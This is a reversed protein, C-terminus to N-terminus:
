RKWPPLNDPTRDAVDPVTLVIGGGFISTERHEPNAEILRHLLMEARERDGYVKYAIGDWMDGLVTTYQKAM